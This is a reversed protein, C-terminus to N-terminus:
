LRWEFIHIQRSLNFSVTNDVCAHSATAISYMVELSAALNRPQVFPLPVAYYCACGQYSSLIISSLSPSLTPPHAVPYGVAIRRLPIPRSTASPSSSPQPADPLSFVSCTGDVLGLMMLVGWEVDILCLDHIAADSLNDHHAHPIVHGSAASSSSANPLILTHVDRSMISMAAM